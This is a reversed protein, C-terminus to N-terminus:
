ANAQATKEDTITRAHYFASDAMQLNCLQEQRDNLIWRYHELQKRLYPTPADANNMDNETREISQKIEEISKRMSDMTAYLARKAAEFENPFFTVKIM